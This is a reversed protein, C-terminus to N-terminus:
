LAKDRYNNFRAMMSKFNYFFLTHLVDAVENM